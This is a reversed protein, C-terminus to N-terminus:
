PYSISFTSSKVDLYIFDNFYVADKMNQITIDYSLFMDLSEIVRWIDKVKVQAYCQ